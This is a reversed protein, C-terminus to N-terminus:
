GEQRGTRIFTEIWAGARPAVYCVCKEPASAHKLGRARAPRSSRGKNIKGERYTEIWAGARPAVDDTLDYLPTVNTEIWAGARPAVDFEPIMFDDLKTEIWAGARPAVYVTIM